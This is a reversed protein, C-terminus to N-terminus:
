IGTNYTQRYGLATDRDLNWQQINTQLGTNYRQRSELTTHKGLNGVVLRQLPLRVGVWLHAFQRVSHLFQAGKAECSQLSVMAFRDHTPPQTVDSGAPVSHGAVLHDSQDKQQQQKYAPNFDTHCLIM